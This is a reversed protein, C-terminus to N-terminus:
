PESLPEVTVAAPLAKQEHVEEVQVLKKWDNVFVIKIIPNAAATEGEPRRLAYQNPFRRELLWAAAQWQMVAANAIITICRTESEAKAKKVAAVFDRLEPAAGPESGRKMWRYFATVSTGSAEATRDLTNGATINDLIAQKIEDNLKFPRGRETGDSSKKTKPRGTKVTLATM